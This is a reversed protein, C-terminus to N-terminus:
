FRGGAGLGAGDDLILPQLSVRVPGGEGGGFDTLALLVITTVAAAGSGALLGITAPRLIRGRANADDLGAQDDADIAHQRDSAAAGLLGWTVGSAVALAGTIGCGVYFYIPDLGAEQARGRAAPAGSPSDRGGEVTVALSEGGAIRIIERHLQASGKHVEIEHRGVDVFIPGALPTTGAAEGDVMIAAGDVPCRVDVSGVLTDLRKMEASVQLMSDAPVEAGGEALYRAYADRARAYHKLENEAQGVNFLIKYSPKLEYARGFEIAAQEYDGQKYLEVGQHFHIRAEEAPDEARASAGAAVLAAFVAVAVASRGSTNRRGM